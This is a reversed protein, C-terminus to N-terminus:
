IDMIECEKQYDYNCEYSVFEDDGRRIRVLHLVRSFITFEQASKEVLCVVCRVQYNVYCACIHM